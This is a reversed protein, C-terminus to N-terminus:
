NEPEAPINKSQMKKVLRPGYKPIQQLKAPILNFKGSDIANEIDSLMKLQNYQTQLTRNLPHKQLGKELIQLALKEHGDDLAKQAYIIYTNAVQTELVYNVYENDPMIKKLKEARTIIATKDGKEMSEFLRLILQTRERSLPPTEGNDSCGCFIAACLTSIIFIIHKKM